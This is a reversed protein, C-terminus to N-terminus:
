VVPPADGPSPLASVEQEKSACYCLAPNKGFYKGLQYNLWDGLIASSIFTALLALVNLHGLSAFAGAAFLLSDGAAAEYM